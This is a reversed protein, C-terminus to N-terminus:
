PTVKVSALRDLWPQVEDRRSADLRWAIEFRRRAEEHRSESYDLVGLALQVDFYNESLTVAKELYLRAEALHGARQEALGAVLAADVHTPMERLVAVAHDLALDLRSRHLSLRALGVESDYHPPAIAIAREYWEQATDLRASWENGLAVFFVLEANGPDAAYCREFAKLAEDYKGLKRYAHGIFPCADAPQPSQDMFLEWTAAEDAPRGLERYIEAQRALYVHQGPFRDVLQRTPELAKAWQGAAFAERSRVLLADLLGDSAVGAGATAAVDAASGRSSKSTDAATSTALVAVPEGGGSLMPSVFLAYWSGALTALALLLRALAPM